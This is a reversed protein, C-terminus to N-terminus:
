EFPSSSSHLPPLLFLFPLIEGSRGPQWVVVNPTPDTAGAAATASDSVTTVCFSALFQGGKKGRKEENEAVASFLLPSLLPLLLKQQLSHLLQLRWFLSLFASPPPAVQQHHHNPYFCFTHISCFLSKVKKQWLSSIASIPKFKAALMGKACSINKKARHLPSGEKTKVANARSPRFLPSPPDDGDQGTLDSASSYHNCLIGLLCRPLFPLLSEVVLFTSFRLLLFISFDWKEM